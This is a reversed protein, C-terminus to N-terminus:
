EEVWLRSLHHILGRMVVGVTCERNKTGSTHHFQTTKEWLIGLIREIDKEITAPLKNFTLEKKIM